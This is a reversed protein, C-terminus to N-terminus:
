NPNGEENLLIFSNCDEISRPVAALLGLLKITVLLTVLPLLNPFM